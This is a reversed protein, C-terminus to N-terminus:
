INNTQETSTNYSWTPCSDCKDKRWSTCSTLLSAFFAFAIILLAKKNIKLKM